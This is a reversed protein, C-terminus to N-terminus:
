DATGLQACDRILIHWTIERRYLLANRGSYTYRPMFGDGQGFQCYSRRRATLISHTLYMYKMSRIVFHCTM